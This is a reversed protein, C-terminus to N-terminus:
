KSLAECIKVIEVFKKADLSARGPLLGDVGGDKLFGEADKENVSGGYIVRMQSAEGGFKDSLIKRIFIAMERCDEPTADRRNLTSSIAWVPEYAVIIKSILNKSVGALCEELQNKVLNFYGHNEDRMNEGVCLIPRLGAGLASKIKKNIDINGEGTARRESHGLIVYRVGVSYLMEGSVEGTFAGVEGWFADQAGLIIKRSFKKLKEIYLFPPCLVIETKKVLSIDKAVNSFLKEAERLTLPNMKWNGIIIRKSM